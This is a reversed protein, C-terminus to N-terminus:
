SLAPRGGGRHRGGPARTGRLAHARALAATAEQGPGAVKAARDAWRSAEDPDGGDAEVAAMVECASLLSRRDLM